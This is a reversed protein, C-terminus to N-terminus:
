AACRYGSFARPRLRECLRHTPAPRGGARGPVRCSWCFLWLRV